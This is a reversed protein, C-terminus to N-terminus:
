VVHTQVKGQMAELDERRVRWRGGKRRGVDRAPLEGALVAAKLHALPLGSYLAAEALTLWPAPAAPQPMAAPQPAPAALLKQTFGAALEQVSQAIRELREREGPVGLGQAFAAPMPAYSRSTGAAMRSIATGTDLSRKLALVDAERMLSVRNRGQQSVRREIVGRQCYELTRRVSLGLIEAAKEKPVWIEGTQIDAPTPKAAPTPEKKAVVRKATKTKHTM